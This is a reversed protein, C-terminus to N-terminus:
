RYTIYEDFSLGITAKCEVQYVEVSGLEIASRECAALTDLCETAEISSGFLLLRYQSLIGFYRSKVIVVNYMVVVLVFLLVVATALHLFKVKVVEAFCQTEFLLLSIKNDM